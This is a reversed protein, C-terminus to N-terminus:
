FTFAADLAAKFEREKSNKSPVMSKSTISQPDAAAQLVGVFESLRLGSCRIRANLLSSWM